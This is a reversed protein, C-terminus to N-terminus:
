ATHRRLFTHIQTIMSSQHDFQQKICAARQHLNTCAELHTTWQRLLGALEVMWVVLEGVRGFMGVWGVLRAGICLPLAGGHAVVEGYDAGLVVREEFVLKAAGLLAAIPLGAEGVLDAVQVLEDQVGAEVNGLLNLPGM